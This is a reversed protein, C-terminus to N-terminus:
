SNMSSSWVVAHVGADRSAAFHQAANEAKGLLVAAIVSSTSRATAFRSRRVRIAATLSSRSTNRLPRFVQGTNPAPQARRTASTRAAASRIASTAGLSFTGLVLAGFAVAPVIATAPAAAACCACEAPASGSIMATMTTTAMASANPPQNAQRHGALPRLVISLFDVMLVNSSRRARASSIRRCASMFQFSRAPLTIPSPAGMRPPANPPGSPAAAPFIRASASPACSDPARSSCSSTILREDSM